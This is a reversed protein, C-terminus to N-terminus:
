VNGSLYLQNGSSGNASRNQYQAVKIQVVDGVNLKGLRFTASPGAGISEIVQIVSGNYILQFDTSDTASVAVLNLLASITVNTMASKATIVGNSIWPYNVSTDVPGATTPAFTSPTSSFTQTSTNQNVAVFSPYGILYQCNMAQSFDVSLNSFSDKDIFVPAKVSTCLQSSSTGYFECDRVKIKQLCSSGANIIYSSNSTLYGGCNVVIFVATTTDTPTGSGATAFLYGTELHTGTIYFRGYSNYYGSASCAQYQSLFNAATGTFNGSNCGTLYVLGGYNIVTNPILANWAAYRPDTPPLTFIYSYLYCGGGVHIISNQGYVIIATVCWQTGGGKIAIESTGNDSLSASTWSPDGFIYAVKSAWINVDNFDIYRGVDWIACSYNLAYNMNITMNTVINQGYPFSILCYHTTTYNLPALAGGDFRINVGGPVTISSVLYLGEPFIVIPRGTLSTPPTYTVSASNLAAQIAATDDTTGDGKAGFDKVNVVDAFRNQLLRPTTTGTATIPAIVQQTALTLSM